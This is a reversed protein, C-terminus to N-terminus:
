VFYGEKELQEKLRKRLRWLITKVKSQGFGFRKSIEDVRDLYWYRRVFMQREMESQAALFRDIAEALEKAELAEDPSADDPICESLEDFALSAEGGGRKQSRGDRWRNLAAYRSLKGLFTALNEPRHPPIANWARMWVDNVCEETDAECRLINGIIARCYLEYKQAAAEVAAEKRNWFLEVIERDEM